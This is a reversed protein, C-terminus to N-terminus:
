KKVQLKAREIFKDIDGAEQSNPYKDKITQYMQQANAYDSLSEYALGAKKLYIPSFTESNADSAAKDFYKIGEAVKGLDVNCDGMLGQILPAIIKDNVSYKKLYNLADEPKNMHYYCIGAYAKALNATKTTGYDEIVGLFGIYEKGDGNLAMEWQQTALFNEGPFIAAQAEKEKPDLYYQRVGIVAVVILVIVAVAIIIHFKYTEIFRESKSFIEGVNAEAKTPTTKAVKKAM